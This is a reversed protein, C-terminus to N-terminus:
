EAKPKKTVKSTKKHRSFYFQLFLYAYSAYLVATAAIMIEPNHCGCRSEDTHQLVFWLLTVLMGLFMQAIQGQTLFRGWSAKYRFAAAMFYYFYMFCHVLSNVLAFVRGASVRYYFAMWTYFLVSAHHYWHLFSVPRRRLVLFLTDILEAYKSLAFVWIWFIDAGSDTQEFDCALYLWSKHRVINVAPITIGVFMCVSLITLFLNWLALVPRLEMGKRQSMVKQGGFVMILYLIVAVSPLSWTYTFLLPSREYSFTEIYSAAQHYLEQIDMTSM